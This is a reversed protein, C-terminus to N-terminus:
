LRSRLSVRVDYCNDVFSSIWSELPLDMKVFLQNGAHSSAHDVLMISTQM